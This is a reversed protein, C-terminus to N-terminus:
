TERRDFLQLLEDTASSDVLAVVTDGAQLRDNARPVRVYDASMVAAILCQAPLPLEALVEGTAPVGENVEIELVYIAGGPLLSRSIVAGTNLFGLVQRAIVERPSVVLDIGLKEV